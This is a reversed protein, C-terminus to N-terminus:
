MGQDFHQHEVKWDEELHHNKWGVQFFIHVDVQIMEGPLIQFDFVCTYIYIRIRELINTVISKQFADM